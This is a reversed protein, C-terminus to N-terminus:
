DGISQDALQGVVIQQDSAELRPSGFFVRTVAPSFPPPRLLVKVQSGQM